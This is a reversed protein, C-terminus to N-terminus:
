DLNNIITECIKSQDEETLTHYLPLCLVTSSILNSNKLDYESEIYPLTSLCPYFYRRTQINNKTLISQINKLINESRFIIPFYSYNYETEENIKQFILGHDKLVNKYYLYQEKRKSLIEPIYKLNLLGMAAHFESNKGNIGLASIKAPGDHGFNKMKNILEFLDNDKTILLGGEISHFLKTAHCSVSSIDGYEFIQKGKHKVGFCHAADYIVKLNYKEAIAEIKEVECPNGFVHTALIAQTNPTILKEIQIPDINFSDKDIDAFVPKCNEWQIASTSAVYSFPTTIVEKTINLAKIAIQLTITGNTHFSINEIGLSKSLESELEKLVPGNNTLWCNDYIKRVLAIYEEIPPLFPKTVLINNKM